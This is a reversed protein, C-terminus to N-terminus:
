LVEIAPWVYQVRDFRVLDDQTTNPVNIHDVSM